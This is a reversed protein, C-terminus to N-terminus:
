VLDNEDNWSTEPSEKVTESIKKKLFYFFNFMILLPTYIDCYRKGERKGNFDRIERERM